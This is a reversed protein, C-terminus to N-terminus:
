KYRHIKFDSNQSEVRIRGKSLVANWGVQMQFEAPFLYGEFLVFKMEMEFENVPWKLKPMTAKLQKLDLSQPDYLLEGALDGKKPKKPLFGVTGSVSDVRFDYNPDNLKPLKASENHGKKGDSKEEKKDTTSILTYEQLSDGKFKQWTKTTDTKEIDGRKDLKHVYTVTNFSYILEKQEAEQQDMKQQLRKLLPEQAIAPVYLAISIIFAFLYRM